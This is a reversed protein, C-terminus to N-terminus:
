GDLITGIDLEGAAIAYFAEELLRQKGPSLFEPKIDVPLISYTEISPQWHRGDGTMMLEELAIIVTSGEELMINGVLMDANSSDDGAWVMPIGSDALGAAADAAEPGPLPFVVDVTNARFRDLTMEEATQIILQCKPCGWLLGQTFGASYDAEESGGTDRVQGVWGTQSALGTMVGALFGAQDYRPKGVTSLSPGPEVGPVDIAVVSLGRAAARELEGDLAERVSVVAIPASSERLYTTAGPLDSKILDWGSGLIWASFDDEWAVPNEAILLVQPAPTFTPDPVPTATLTPTLVVAGSSEITPTGCGILAFLILPVLRSWKPMLM